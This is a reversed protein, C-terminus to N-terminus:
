QPMLLSAISASLLRHGRVSLYAKMKVVDVFFGANRRAQQDSEPMM